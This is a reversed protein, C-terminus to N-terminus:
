SAKPTPSLLPDDTSLVPDPTVGLLGPATDKEGRKDEIRNWVKIRVTSGQCAAPDPLVVEAGATPNQEAALQDVACGPLGVQLDLTLEDRSWCSYTGEEPAVPTEPCGEVKRPQWGAEALARTYVATTEKFPRDSEVKRERFSCEMICLTSGTEQNEEDKEAWAPVELAALSALVPDSVSARLGVAVPLVLLVLAALSFLTVLRLRRQTRLKHRLEALGGEVTEDIRPVGDADGEGFRGDAAGGPAQSVPGTHSVPRVAAARVASPGDDPGPQGDDGRGPVSAGGVAARGPSAAGGRPPGDLARAPGDVSAM